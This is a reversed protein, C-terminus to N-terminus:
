NDNSKFKNMDSIILVGGAIVCFIGVIWRINTDINELNWSFPNFGNWIFTRNILSLVVDNVVAYFIGCWITILGAKIKKSFKKCCLIAFIVLFFVFIVSLIPATIRWYNPTNVLLGISFLLLMLLSVDAIVIWLIKRPLPIEKKLTIAAVPLTPLAIALLSASGAVFFWTGGTFSCIVSLLFLLSGTFATISKLLRYQYTVLPMVTISALVLLAGLVIFFWNLAHGTILNVIMCVIIPILLIGAFAMGIVASDRKQKKTHHLLVEGTEQKIEEVCENNKLKQLYETCDTCQKLHEDVYDRSEQSCIEDAYLPLIDKIINCQNM